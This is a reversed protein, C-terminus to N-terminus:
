GGDRKVGRGAVNRFSAVQVPTIVIENLPVSGPAPSAVTDVMRLMYSILHDICRDAPQPLEGDWAHACTTIFESLDPLLAPNARM